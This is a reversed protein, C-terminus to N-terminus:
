RFLPGDGASGDAIGADARAFGARAAEVEEMWRDWDMGDNRWSELYTEAAAATLDMQPSHSCNNMPVFQRLIPIRHRLAEIDYAPKPEM